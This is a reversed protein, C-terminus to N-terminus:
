LGWPCEYTEYEKILKPVCACSAKIAGWGCAIPRVTWCAAGAAVTKWACEGWTHKKAAPQAPDDLHVLLLEAREALVEAPLQEERHIEGREPSV